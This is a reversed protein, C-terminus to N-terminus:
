NREIVRVTLPGEGGFFTALAAIVLGIVGGEGVMWWPSTLGLINATEIVPSVVDWAILVLVFNLWAGFLPGILWWPMALKIVPHYNMVGAVGIVAGMTLYWGLVGFRLRLDDVGFSPLMFFAALGIIFGALKGVAIRTILSPKSFM